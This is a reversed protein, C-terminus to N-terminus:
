FAISEGIYMSYRHTYQKEIPMDGEPSVTYFRFGRIHGIGLQYVVGVTTWMNKAKVAEDRLPNLENGFSLSITAGYFDNKEDNTSDQTVTDKQSFDTFFGSRVILNQTLYM